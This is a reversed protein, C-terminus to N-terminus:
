EEDGEGEKPKVQLQITIDCGKGLLQKNDKSWFLAAEDTAFPGVVYDLKDLYTVVICAYFTYGDRTAFTEPSKELEAPKM